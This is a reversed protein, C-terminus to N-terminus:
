RPPRAGRRSRGPPQRAAAALVDLWADSIADITFHTSCREVARRGLENRLPAHEALDRVASALEGRRDLDVIRGTVDHEVVDAIAGVDTSVCPIGCLGAEILVAPMSDGGRSPLVLVDIAQLALLPQELQGIFRARGPLAVKALEELRAREPGDGTILLQAHPIETVAAIALDVGKEPVLAGVYGVVVDDVDLGFRHRASARESATPPAFGSGPVANPIVAIRDTDFRYRDAVTQALQESLAVVARARRLYTAVRLRRARTGAWFLPDSIQRYVFPHPTGLLAAACAVLTSSGHAAVVDHADARQRLSRLTTASRAGTGIAEVGLVDGRPGDALAVTEVTVNRARLGTALDTAFVQAGRRDQDTVVQLVSLRGGSM